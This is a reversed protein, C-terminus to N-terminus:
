IPLGVSLLEREAIRRRRPVRGMPTQTVAFVAEALAYCVQLQGARVGSGAFRSAFLDFTEPKCAESCNIFARVGGLDVPPDDSVTRALHHFAFNPLWVLTGRHTAIAEFLMAPRAVWEFPDLWVIPVRRVFPLLLCAILGMDHYLPLWSVIC